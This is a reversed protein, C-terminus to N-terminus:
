IKLGFFSLTKSFNLILFGDSGMKLLNIFLCPQFNKYRQLSM